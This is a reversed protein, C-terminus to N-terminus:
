NSQNYVADKINLRMTNKNYKSFKYRIYSSIESEHTSLIFQRNKFDNRLLEVLSAINIEDMTQVPDDILLLDMQDEGYVKNLSMTFAIILGSLQGSSLYNIVDHDNEVNSVFKIGEFTVRENESIFLGCGNQYSQIIKGSYIYFPIEIDKIIKKRHNMIEDRYIKILEEIEEKFKKMEKLLNELLQIREDIKRSELTGSNYYIYELYYVKNLIAELTLDEVIKEDRNFISNFVESHENYKTYNPNIKVLNSELHNSFKQIEEDNFYINFSTNLYQKYEINYEILSKELNKMEEIMGEASILREYFKDNIINEKRLVFQDIEKIFNNIHEEFLENLLKEYLKGERDFMSDLEKEKMAIAELLDSYSDFPEGCLPCNTQSLITDNAVLTNFHLMLTHRTDKLKNVIESIDGMKSNLDSLENITKKIAEVDLNSSTGIIKKGTKFIEFDLPKQRIEENSLNFKIMELTKLNNNVRKITDFQNIFYYTNLFDRLLTENESVAKIFKNKKQKKFTDFNKKFDYIQRLENLFISRNTTSINIDKEDWVKNIEENNFLKNYDVKKINQKKVNQLGEAIIKKKGKEHALSGNPFSEINSIEINMKRKIEEFKKLEKEEKNTDFLFSIDNMREKGKRKLFNINDEQQVYYFLNFTRDLNTINIIEKNHVKPILKENSLKDEFNNLIYTEFINWNDPKLDTANYPKSNDIKKCITKSMDNNIIEIKIITDKHKNGCFLINNYGARADMTNVIRSIKGTLCLEIADFITTKGFGNPGDLVIIDKNSFDLELNSIHKFNKISIRGIKNNM